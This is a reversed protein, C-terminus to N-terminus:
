TSGRCEPSWWRSRAPRAGGAEDTMDMAFLRLTADHGLRNPAGVVGFRFDSGLDFMDEAFLLVPHAQENSGAPDRSRLLLDSQRVEDIIEFAQHGQPADRRCSRCDSGDPAAFM